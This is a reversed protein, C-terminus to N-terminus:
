RLLGANMLAMRIVIDRVTDFVFRVNNDDTACTTHVYIDKHERKMELFKKTIFKACPEFENPGEYDKFGVTLPVTKLKEKFLDTKNLFLIMSSNRFWKSNSIEDFLNLAETMRPVTEDEFLMQDYESVAAVFIVAHVDEFSHIWKKRENRQGGVDVIKIQFGDHKILTEMIGTTRVRCQLIDAKTPLFDQKIFRDMNVFFYDASVPLQFKARAAYTEKIGPDSWLERIASVISEDLPVGAVQDLVFKKQSVLSPNLMFKTDGLIESQKLLTQMSNLTNANVIPVYEKYDDESFGAGYLDVIQKFITSKGSEGAGLLLLKQVQKDAKYDAEQERDIKRNLANEEPSSVIGGAKTTSNCMGM